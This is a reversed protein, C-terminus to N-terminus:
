NLWELVKKGSIVRGIGTPQSKRPILDRVKQLGFKDQAVLWDLENDFYLVIYNHTLMLEETFPVEGEFETQKDEEDEEEPEFFGFQTMDFDLSALEADMAEIDWESENTKNDALRLAKIQEETLDDARVVPVKEMGLKKAAMLRGHGIVVVNDADVVIPQKFEFERISNAIQEIQLQPHTKANKAYPKLDEPALYEIRIEAGGAPPRNNDIYDKKMKMKGRFLATTNTIRAVAERYHENLGGQAGALWATVCLPCGAKSRALSLRAGM